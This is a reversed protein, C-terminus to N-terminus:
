ITTGIAALLLSPRRNMAAVRALNNKALAFPDPLAHGSVVEEDDAAARGPAAGGHLSRLEAVGDEDDLLPPTDAAHGDVGAGDRGLRHALGHQVEGAVPLAAEIATGVPHLLIDAGVVQHGPQVLREVM